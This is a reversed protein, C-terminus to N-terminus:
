KAVAVTVDSTSVTLIKERGAFVSLEKPRARVALKGSLLSTNVVNTLTLKGTAYDVYGIQKIRTGSSTLWLAGEYDTITGTVNSESFSDSVVSGAVIANNFDVVASVRQLYFVQADAELVTTVDSSRISLDSDDILRALKSQEFDSNFRELSDESYVDVVAKIKQKISDGNVVTASVSDVYARVSVKLRIYSPSVVVVDVVGVKVANLADQVEQVRAATLGQEGDLSLAVYMKGLVGYSASGTWANASKIDSFKRRAIEAYDDPSLARDQSLFFKPARLRMSDISEAARGGNTPYKVTVSHLGDNIDNVTPTRLFKLERFGNALPGTTVLYAVRIIKGHGVARGLVGDGFTVEAVGDPGEQLFFVRSTGDVSMISRAREYRALRGDDSGEQVFVEITEADVDAQPLLFRQGVVKADRVFDTSSWTGQLVEVDRFTFTDGVKNASKAEATVFTVIRNRDDRAEFASGKELLLTSPLTVLGQTVILDLTTRAARISEPFYGLEKCRNVASERRQATLLSREASSINAVLNSQYNAYTLLKILVDMGTGEQDYDRFRDQAALFAKLELEIDSFDLNQVSLEQAVTM